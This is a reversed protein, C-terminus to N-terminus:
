NPLNRLIQIPGPQMSSGPQQQSIRAQQYHGHLQNNRQNDLEEEEEESEYEGEDDEEVINHHGM